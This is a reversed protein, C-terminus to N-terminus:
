YIRCIKKAEEPMGVPSVNKILNNNTSKINTDHVNNIITNIPTNIGKNKLKKLIQPGITEWGDIKSPNITEGTTANRILINGKNDLAFDFTEKM